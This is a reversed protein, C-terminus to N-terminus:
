LPDDIVQSLVFLPGREPIVPTPTVIEDDGVVERLVALPWPRLHTRRPRTDTGTPPPAGMGGHEFILEGNEFRWSSPHWELCRVDGRALERLEILHGRRVTVFRDSYGHCEPAERNRSPFTLRVVALPRGRDDTGARLVSEVRCSRRGRCLAARLAADRPFASGQAAVVLPVLLAFLAIM